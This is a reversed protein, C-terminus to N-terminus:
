DFFYLRSPIVFEDNPNLWRCCVTIIDCSFLIVVGKVLLPPSGLKGGSAGFAFDFKGLVVTEPLICM